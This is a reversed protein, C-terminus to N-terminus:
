RRLLEGNACKPWYPLVRNTSSTLDVSSNPLLLRSMTNNWALRGTVHTMSSVVCIMRRLRTTHARSGERYMGIMTLPVM